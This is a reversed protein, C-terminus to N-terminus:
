IVTSLRSDTTLMKEKWETIYFRLRSSISYYFEHVVITM